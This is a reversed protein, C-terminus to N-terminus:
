PYIINMNSFVNSHFSKDECGQKKDNTVFISERVLKLADQLSLEASQNERHQYSFNNQIM